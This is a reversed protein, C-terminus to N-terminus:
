ALWAVSHPHSELSRDFDRPSMIVPINPERGLPVEVWHNPLSERPAKLYLCVAHDEPVNSIQRAEGLAQQYDGRIPGLVRRGNLVGEVQYLLNDGHLVGERIEPILTAEVISNLDSMLCLRAFTVAKKTLSGAGIDGVVFYPVLVYNNEPDM